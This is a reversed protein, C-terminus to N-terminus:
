MLFKVCSEFGNQIDQISKMKNKISKLIVKCITLTDLLNM